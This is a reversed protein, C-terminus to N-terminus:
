ALLAIHRLENQVQQGVKMPPYQTEEGEDRGLNLQEVRLRKARDSLDPIPALDFDSSLHWFFTSSIRILPRESFDRKRKEITGLTEKNVVVEHYGAKVLGGTLHELQKGAQVLLYNGPPIKVAIRKGTNRAWIHLGPYRSRGHITLFNLDTHFGALITNEDGYKRLDSATPALIHPGYRGADSFTKESLGLGTAAMEALGAVANKMSSGWQNMTPEWRERISPSEPVINKANLGPFETKYPPHEVIKWFFRCKPDPQHGTIDLPRQSPALRAIIDLCPEDVACKPKETNELTAGIQYGLEPREDKKLAEEPQAFYDELLDLFDNNDQESVRSDHLLLAGYTILADAARDCEAVVAPSDHPQDLFLDLNIIPLEM